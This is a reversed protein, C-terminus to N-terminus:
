NSSIRKHVLLNCLNHKKLMSNSDLKALIYKSTKLSSSNYASSKNSFIIIISDANDIQLTQDRAHFYVRRLALKMLLDGNRKNESVKKHVHVQVALGCEHSRSKFFAYLLITLFLIINYLTEGVNDFNRTQVLLRSKLSSYTARTPQAGPSCSFILTLSPRFALRPRM